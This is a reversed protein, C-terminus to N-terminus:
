RKAHRRLLRYNKFGGLQHGGLIRQEIFSLVRYKRRHHKHRAASRGEYDLLYKWDIGAVWERMTQPHTATFRPLANLPGYDFLPPSDRFRQQAAARGVYAASFERRKRQMVRPPRVWGYHFVEADVPAVNLKRNGIRFSQADRYSQVGIHNRVIRIERPYWAHSVLYHDFDGWFHRFNFLLGEVATAGLLAACRERIAPLYTEHVVEDSQLYFCWDGVCHSLAIDTQRAFVHPGAQGDQQWQTDIIRIRPDGISAIRERTRDGEDGRGVAIVFEDCLSLISQISEKVPYHLLTANRAFSFASIKM